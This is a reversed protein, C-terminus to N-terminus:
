VTWALGIAPIGLHIALVPGVAAISPFKIHPFKQAVLLALEKATPENGLHQVTINKASQPVREILKELQNRKGRMFGVAELTGNKFELIPRINLITSVSQRIFGLRGSRKLPEMNEVSFATGVMNRKKETAAYVEDLSKGKKILEQAHQVLFRLAATAALTDVVRIKVADTEKAALMASSFTGSLRSSICFCLIEDGSSLLENFVESFAEVSPQSTSMPLKGSKIKDYGEITDVYHDLYSSGDVTYNMPVIQINLKQAEGQTLAISSDSVIRIM